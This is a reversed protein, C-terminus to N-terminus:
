DKPNFILFINFTSFGTGSFASTAAFLTDFFSISNKQSIPLSLLLSSILIIMLFGIAPILYIRKNKFM